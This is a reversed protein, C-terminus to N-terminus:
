PRAHLLTDVPMMGITLGARGASMTAGVAEGLTTRVVFLMRVVSAVRAVRVATTARITWGSSPRTREQKRFVFLCVKAHEQSALSARRPKQTAQPLTGNGEFQESRPERSLM